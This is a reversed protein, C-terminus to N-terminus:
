RHKKKETFIVFPLNIVRLEIPVKHLNKYKQLM